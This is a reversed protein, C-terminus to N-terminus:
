HKNNSPKRNASGSLLVRCLRSSQGTSPQIMINAPSCIAQEWKLAEQGALKETRDLGTSQDISYREVKDDIKGTAVNHKHFWSGVAFGSGNVQTAVIAFVLDVQEDSSEPIDSTSVLVGPQPVTWAESKNPWRARWGIGKVFHLTTFFRAAECEWCDYYTLALEHNGTGIWDLLTVGYGGILLQSKGTALSINYISWLDYDPTPAGAERSVTMVLAYNEEIGVERIATISQDHLARRVASM